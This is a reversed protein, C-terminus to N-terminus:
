GAYTLGLVGDGPPFPESVGDGREEVGDPGVLLVSSGATPSTVVRQASSVLVSSTDSGGPSGDVSLRRLEVLTEDLGVLAVLDTPSRWSIDRVTEARGQGERPLALVTRGPLVRVVGGREDYRVRNVVVRQAGAEGVVSVIRSGDRAVLLRTIREGSVGPVAVTEATGQNLVQVRGQAGGDAVWMRDAVDWSLTTAGSTPLVLPASAPVDLSAVAVEGAPTVGAMRTGSLNVAVRTPGLAALPETGDVPRRGDDDVTVIGGDAVGFLRAEAGVVSPSYREGANVAFQEEGNPTPLPVGGVTVRVRAISPDQRLTWSLQAVMQETLGELPLAGEELAVEALGSPTVVVTQELRATTGLRSIEVGDLDPEPGTLLGTVLQTALQDGRPRFVPEPVLIRGTPDFFYLMVQEYRSALWTRPVVLADALGDIRWEGDEVVLRYSVVLDSPDDAVVGAETQQGQGQGQWAGREDLVGVDRLEVTVRAGVVPRGLDEYVVTEREPAWTEQATRTLFSRAVNTQLSTARMAELFHQVIEDPSEGPTPGPPVFDVGATSTDTSRGSPVTVDGGDPLQVCGVLVALLALALAVGLFPRRPGSWRPGSWRRPTASM